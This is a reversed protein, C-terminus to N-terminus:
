AANEMPSGGMVIPPRAQQRRHLAHTESAFVADDADQTRAPNTLWTSWGLRCPQTAGLELPPVEAAALVLQVEFTQEAGTAIRVLDFMPEFAGGSPLLEMYEAFNLSGLRLRFRYQLLRVSLGVNVDVGLSANTQGLRTQDEPDLPYWAPQFQEVRAAVEFYSEVLQELVQAPVPAMALLGARWFLARDAFHLREELAPTALGLIGRLAREFFDHNGTEHAIPLSYKEFARFYLSILRHNFVDFFDRLVASRDRAQEFVEQAYPMPLSGYCAPTAVGLFSVTLRPPGGPQKPPEISVVDSTPFAFSMHSLFRVAEREPDADYGVGAREPALAHLLRVAQLFEFRVAEEELRDKLSGASRGRSPAM